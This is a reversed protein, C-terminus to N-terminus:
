KRPKDRGSRRTQQGGGGGNQQAGGEGRGDTQSPNSQGGTDTNTPRKTTEAIIQLIPHPVSTQRALQSEIVDEEICNDAELTCIGTGRVAQILVREEEDILVYPLLRRDERWNNMNVWDLHQVLTNIM